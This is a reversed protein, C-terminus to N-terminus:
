LVKPGHRKIDGRQFAVQFQERGAQILKGAPFFLYGLTDRRHLRRLLLESQLYGGRRRGLRGM